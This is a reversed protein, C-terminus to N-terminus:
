YGRRREDSYSRYTGGKNPWVHVVNGEEYEVLSVLYDSGKRSLDVDLLSLGKTDGSIM